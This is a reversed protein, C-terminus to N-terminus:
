ISLILHEGAEATKKMDAILRAIFAKVVDTLLDIAEDTTRKFGSNKIIETTVKRRVALDFPIKKM